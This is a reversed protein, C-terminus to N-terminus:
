SDTITYDGGQNMKFRYVLSLVVIVANFVLLSMAIEVLRQQMEKKMKDTLSKAYENRRKFEFKMDKDKNENCLSFGYVDFEDLTKATCQKGEALVYSPFLEPPASITACKEVKCDGKECSLNEWMSDTTVYYRTSPSEEILVHFVSSDYVIANSGHVYTLLSVTSYNSIDPTQFNDECLKYM